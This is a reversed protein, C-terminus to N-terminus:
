VGARDAKPSASPMAVEVRKRKHGPQATLQREAVRAGAGIRSVPLKAILQPPNISVVHDHNVSKWVRLEAPLSPEPHDLPVRRRLQQGEAAIVALLM